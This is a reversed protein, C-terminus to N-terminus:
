IAARGLGNYTSQHRKGHLGSLKYQRLSINKLLIPVKLYFKGGEGGM